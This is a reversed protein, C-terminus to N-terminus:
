LRKRTHLWRINPRKSWRFNILSSKFYCVLFCLERNM